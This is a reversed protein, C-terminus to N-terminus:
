QKLYNKLDLLANEINYLVDLNTYRKVELGLSKFYAERKKDRAINKDYFHIDGDIEIILKKEPCYFDVVYQGIGHQRRFKVEIQNKKVKRWLVAEAKTADRRLNRRKEERSKLNFIRKDM